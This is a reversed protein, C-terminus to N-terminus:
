KKLSAKNWVGLYRIIVISNRCHRSILSRRFPGREIQLTLLTSIRAISLMVNSHGVRIDNFLQRHFLRMTVNMPNRYRVTQSFRVSINWLPGFLHDTMSVETLLKWRAQALGPNLEAMNVLRRSRFYDFPSLCRCPMHPTMKGRAPLICSACISRCFRICQYHWFACTSKNKVGTALQKRSNVLKSGM